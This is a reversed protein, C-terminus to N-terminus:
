QNQTLVTGYSFLFKEALADVVPYATLVASAPIEVGPVNSVLAYPVYGPVLNVQMEYENKGPTTVIVLPHTYGDIDVGSIDSTLNKQLAVAIEGTCLKCLRMAGRIIEWPYGIEGEVVEKFHEFAGERQALQQIHEADLMVTGDQKDDSM